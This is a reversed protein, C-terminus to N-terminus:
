ISIDHNIKKERDYLEPYDIIDTLLPVNYPDVQYISGM